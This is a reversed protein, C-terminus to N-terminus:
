EAEDAGIDIGNKRVPSSVHVGPAADFHIALSYRPQLISKMESFEFVLAAVILSAVVVFLGVRFQLKRDDM